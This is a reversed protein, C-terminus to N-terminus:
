FENCDVSLSTGAEMRDYLSYGLSCMSPNSPLSHLRNIKINNFVEYFFVWSTCTWLYEALERVLLGRKYNIKQLGADIITSAVRKPQGMVSNHCDVFRGYQISKRECDFCRLTLYFGVHLNGFNWMLIEKGNRIGSLKAGILSWSCKLGWAIKSCGRCLSEPQHFENPLQKQYRFTPFM